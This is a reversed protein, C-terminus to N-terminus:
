VPAPMGTVTPHAPDCAVFSFASSGCGGAWSATAIYGGATGGDDAAVEIGNGLRVTQKARDSPGVLYFTADGNGTTAISFGNGATVQKPPHLDAARAGTLSLESLLLLIFFVFTHRM